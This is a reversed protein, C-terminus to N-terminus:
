AKHIYKHHYQAHHYTPIERDFEALLQSRSSKWMEYIATHAILRTASSNDQGYGLDHVLNYVQKIPEFPYWGEPPSNAPVNKFVGRVEEIAARLSSLVVLHEAQSPSSMETYTLAETIAGVIQSWLARLAQLYSNRRQFAFALYAAPIAIVLPLIDKYTRYRSTEEVAFPARLWVAFIIAIAYTAMVLVLVLQLHRRTM